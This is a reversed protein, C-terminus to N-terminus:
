PLLPARAGDDTANGGFCLLDDSIGSGRLLSVTEARLSYDARPCQIMPLVIVGEGALRHATFYAMCISTIISDADSAQNGMVVWYQAGPVMGAPVQADDRATRLFEAMRVIRPSREACRPATTATACAVAAAAVGALLPARPAVLCRRAALAARPQAPLRLRLRVM